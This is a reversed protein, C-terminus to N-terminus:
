KFIRKLLPTKKGTTIGFKIMSFKGSLEIIGEDLNLSKVEIDSGTLLVGGDAMEIVVQNQSSSVIKTAGSLSLDDGNLILKKDM